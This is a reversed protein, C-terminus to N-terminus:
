FKSYIFNSKEFGLGYIGLLLTILLLSLIIILKKDIKLNYISKLKDHKIDVIIGIIITVIMIILNPINLGLKTINNILDIGNFKYFISFFMKFSTLSDPYIFFVWLFSVILFTLTINLVKFDSKEKPTFAVIIGHFLGWFFYNIGHWLGSVIFTIILNIRNRIKSCKNGGLPIYVYDKFWTSLSIHWKRWFERLNESLYPSNFNESLEIGLIKSFGLVMDIGGSFDNYLEFSYLILALFVYSGFYAEPNSSITSIIIAIRGAIVYKKFLGWAVRILGNFFNDKTITRKNYLTKSIQDYRSIPGIFLYPIYMVFLFYNFISKEPQYKEKYIDILYGLVSFTYYSIGLPVLISINLFNNFSIIKFFVLILINIILTSYFILKKNKYMYKAALYTSLASFVIFILSKLGFSAYILISIILLLINAM